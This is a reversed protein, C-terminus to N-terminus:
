SKIYKLYEEREFITKTDIVRDLFIIGNIHDYEHQIVRALLGEAKLIFKKGDLDYAEVIVSTSRPVSAFIGGDDVSGCGEFGGKVKKGGFIKKSFYTIKPNIFVKLADSKEVTIRLNTPRIETVFIRLGIGIQPAAMGILSHHRMSDTLDRVVRKVESSQINKVLKSKLRIVPNGVQTTKKIIMKRKLEM